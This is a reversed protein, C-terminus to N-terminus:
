SLNHENEIIIYLKKTLESWNEQTEISMFNKRESLIKKIEKKQKKYSKIQTLFGNLGHKIIESTGALNLGVISIDKSIAEITAIGMPENIQNALFVKAKQLHKKLQLTTLNQKLKIHFNNKIPYRKEMGNGLISFSYHRNVVQASIHHGKLYNIAGISLIKRSDIERTKTKKSRKLPQITFSNKKYIKKLLYSSFQSNTIITDVSKTNIRDTEKISSRIIRAFLRKPKWYDFSTKEYFERKTEQFFYIKPIKIYRLLFPAQTYLCPHILAINFEKNINTAMIRAQKKLTTQIQLTQILINQSPVFPTKVIKKFYKKDKKSTNKQNTYLTLKHKQSLIKCTEEM